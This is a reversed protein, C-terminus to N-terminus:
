SERGSAIKCPRCACQLDSIGGRPHRRFGEHISDHPVGYYGKCPECWHHERHRQCGIPRDLQGAECQWEMDGGWLPVHKVYARQGASDPAPAADEGMHRALEATAARWLSAADVVAGYRADVTVDGGDGARSEAARREDDVWALVARDARTVMTLAYGLRRGEHANM